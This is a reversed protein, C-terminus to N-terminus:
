RARRTCFALGLSARVQRPAVPHFHVDSVGDGGESRLRSADYDRIDSARSDLANLLTAQFALGRVILCAGRHRDALYDRCGTDASSCACACRQPESPHSLYLSM